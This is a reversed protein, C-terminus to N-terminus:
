RSPLYALFTYGILGPSTPLHITILRGTLFEIIPRSVRLIRSTGYGMHRRAEGRAAARISLAGGMRGIVSGDGGCIM